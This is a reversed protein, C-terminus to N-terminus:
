MPDSQDDKITRIRLGKAEKSTNPDLYADEILVRGEIMSNVIQRAQKDSKDPVHRHVVTCVDRWDSNHHVSYRSGAKTPQEKGKVKRMTGEPVGMEIERVISQRMDDTVGDLAQPPTWPVVTQVNDGSPYLSTRNRLDVGVIQFWKADRLQPAINVKGSDIRIFSRRDGAPIQLANAEDISMTSLTYVLRAGNNVASAGRGRDANGPDTAGKSTHHLIDVAINKEIALETLTSIVFDMATNDNEEVDHAKVLPDFLLLDIKHADIARKVEDLMAGARVRSEQKRSRGAPESTVLKGAKQGPAALFLWGDLEETSIGHHLKAAQVRRRLEDADDELSVYLVRCRQFVKEGTLERNTACSIAQLIRMATKGGGGTALLSSVFQRCYTNGLLWARPPIVYTDSGANWEGLLSSPGETTDRPESPTPEPEAQRESGAGNESASHVQDSGSTAPDPARPAAKAGVMDLFAAEHEDFSRRAAAEQERDFRDLWDPDAEDAEWRLAGMGIQTPPSRHYHQWRTETEHVSYKDSKQSWLHFAEQGEESGGTAAFIAMGFRNWEDWGLDDNPIARLAPEVLEPEEALLGEDSSDHCRYRPLYDAPFHPLRTPDIADGGSLWEYGDSPPVIVYGGEGRTDVGIFGNVNSTSRIPENTRLYLHVGGNGTRTILPSIKRWGPVAAFGDKGNKADIDLVAIRSRAGTPIAIQAKPDATWWIEIQAPDTTADKFGNKTLPKKNRCPFVPFGQAAWALAANLLKKQHAAGDSPCHGGQATSGSSVGPVAEGDGPTKETEAKM